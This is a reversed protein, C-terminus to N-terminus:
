EDAAMMKAQAAAIKAQVKERRQKLSLKASRVCDTGDSAVVKDGKRENTIGKKEKPEYEPNENIKM